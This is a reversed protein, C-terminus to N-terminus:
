NRAFPYWTVNAGYFLYVNGAYLASVNVAFNVNNTIMYGVGFSGGGGFAVTGLLTNGFLAGFNFNIKEYWKKQLIQPDVKLALSVPVFENNKSDIYVKYLGQEDKTLILELQLDSLWDLNISAYGPNSLTYGSVRLNDQSLDFEVKTRVTALCTECEAPISAPQSGSEDVVTVKADKIEFYKDKWQLAVNTLAFIKEKNKEIVKQLDQNQAKLNELQIAASSYASETIKVLQQSEALKNQLERVQKDYQSQKWWFGVSLALCVGILLYILYKQM